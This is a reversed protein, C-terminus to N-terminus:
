LEEIFDAFFEVDYNEDTFDYIDEKRLGKLNSKESKYYIELEETIYEQKILGLKILIKKFINENKKKNISLLIKVPNRYLQYVKESKSNDSLYYALEKCHYNAEAMNKFIFYVTRM